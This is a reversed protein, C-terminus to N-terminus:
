QSPQSKSQALQDAASTETLVRLRQNKEAQGALRLWAQAIEMFPLRTLASETHEALLICKAAQRMYEEQKSV